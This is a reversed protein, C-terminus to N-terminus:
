RLRLWSCAAEWFIETFSEGRLNYATAEVVVRQNMDVMEVAEVDAYGDVFAARAPQELSVSFDELDIVDGREIMDATKFNM